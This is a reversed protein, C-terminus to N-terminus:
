LLLSCWFWFANFSGEVSHGKGDFGGNIAGDVLDNDEGVIFVVDSSSNM